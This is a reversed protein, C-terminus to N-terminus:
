LYKKIKYKEIISNFLNEEIDKKIENSHKLTLVVGQLYGKFGMLEIELADKILIDYQELIPKRLFKKICYLDYSSFYLHKDYYINLFNCIKSIFFRFFYKIM